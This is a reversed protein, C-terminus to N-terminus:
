IHILSLRCRAHARTSKSKYCTTTKSSYRPSCSVHCCSVHTVCVHAYAYVCMSPDMHNHTAQHAYTHAYTHAHTYRRLLVSATPAGESYVYMCVRVCACVMFFTLETHPHRCVRTALQAYQPTYMPTHLHFHAFTHVCAPAERYTDDLSNHRVM